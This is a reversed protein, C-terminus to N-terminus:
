RCVKNPLMKSSAIRRRMLFHGYVWERTPIKSPERWTFPTAQIHAALDVDHRLSHEDSSAVRMLDRSKAAFQVIKVKDALRTDPLPFESM